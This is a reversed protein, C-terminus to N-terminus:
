QKDRYIRAMDRAEDRKRITERKDYKKKGKALAMEVKAKGNKFYIKIPILAFGREQVKGILRKIEQKHLLLKRERLPDHNGYHAHSYPSIHANCLYIEGNKIKGYSDQLNGRGLRLSKVETGTLVLGAEIADVIFYDHRAKRNQCVLKIAHHNKQQM